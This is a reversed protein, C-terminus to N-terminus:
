QPDLLRGVEEDGDKAASRRSQWLATPPLAGILMGLILGQVVDPSLSLFYMLQALLLLSVVLPTLGLSSAIEARRRWLSFYLVLLILVGPIGFRLLLEVYYNHPLTDTTVGNITRTWIPGSPAGFILDTVSHHTSLLKEWGTLRWGFTGSSQTASRLDKALTGSQFFGLVVLAVSLFVGGVIKISVGRSSRFRGIVWVVFAVLGIVAGIAWITRIQLVFAGIGAAFALLVGVHSSPWRLVSLIAALEVLLLAGGAAVPRSSVAIGNRM